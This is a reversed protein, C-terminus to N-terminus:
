DFPLGDSEHFNAEIDDFTNMFNNPLTNFPSSFAQDWAQLINNKLFTTPAGCYICYRANATALHGCSDYDDSINTCRNVLYTGCIHCFDGDPSIEENDCIPCRIAKSNKDLSIKATYKMKGDGRLLTKNGCIPCYKGTSQIVCAYCTCCYKKYIFNYYYYFIPKDYPDDKNMQTIWQKYDRFRRLAAPGSIQCFERLQRETSIKLAYLVVHPVLILQAFYDAEAELENYEPTSLESRFIRTKQHTKQHELMIHGLEHAINWRYRNSLTISNEIDNYYIIYFNNDAYYDTCADMSNAFDIMKNYSIHMREMQKSYSILRINSFSRVLSKVKLPIFPVPYNCLTKYVAEKIEKRRASTINIPIM